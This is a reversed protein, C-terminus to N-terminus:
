QGPLGLKLRTSRKMSKSVVVDISRSCELANLKSEGHISVTMDSDPIVQLGFFLFDIPGYVVTGLKYKNEVESFFKEATHRQSTMLLDYVIRVAILELSGTKM